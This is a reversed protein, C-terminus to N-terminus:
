DSTFVDLVWPGSSEDYGDIQVWYDGAALTLDLFSRDRSYGASCGGFVEDGPCSSGTRVDVITAYDSGKTDFIV